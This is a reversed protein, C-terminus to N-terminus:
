FPNDDNAPESFNKVPKFNSSYEVNSMDAFRQNNPTFSVTVKGIAGNRYKAIILECEDPRDYSENYYVPRYPFIVMDADQEIAGSERLDALMPRKDGRSEVARSLQSLAVVPINLEKALQKLRRSIESIEQERNGNKKFTGAVLQIYDIYLIQINHKLKWQKSISVIDNISLGGKDCIYLPLGMLTNTSSDVKQWDSLHMGGKRIQKLDVGSDASLMREVLQGIGMELSFFGAPIGNAAQNRMLDIILATKGMAPRAAVIIFDTPQLGMTQRDFSDLHTTVGTKYTKSEGAQKLQTVKDAVSDAFSISQIRNLESHIAEIENTLKDFEIFFDSTDDYMEKISSTCCTILKRKLYCEKVVYAHTEINAASGICNSLQAIYFPGGTNELEDTKKLQETVTLLDIPLNSHYLSNIAKWIRQHADVYFCEEHIINIAIHIADKEILVAGIVATEMNKSQPPLKGYDLIENGRNRDRLLSKKAIEIPDAM